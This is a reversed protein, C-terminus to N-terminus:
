IIGLKRACSWQWSRGKSWESTMWDLAFDPDTAQERTIDPHSPLHIQALGFSQERGNKGTIRSQITPDFTGATECQVTAYIDSYKVGNKLSYLVIKEQISNTNIKIQSVPEPLIPSSSVYELNSSITSSAVLVSGIILLPIKLIM